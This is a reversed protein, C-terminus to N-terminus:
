PLIQLTTASSSAIAQGAVPEIVAAFSYTLGVASSLRGPAFNLQFSRKGNADLAGHM